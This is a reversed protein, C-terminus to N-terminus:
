LVLKTFFLIHRNPNLEIFVLSISRLVYYNFFDISGNPAFCKGKMSTAGLRLVSSTLFYSEPRRVLREFVLFRYFGALTQPNAQLSPLGPLTQLFLFLYRTVVFRLVILNFFLSEEFYDM